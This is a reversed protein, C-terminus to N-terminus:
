GFMLLLVAGARLMALHFFLPISTEGCSLHQDTTRVIRVASCDFMTSFFAM